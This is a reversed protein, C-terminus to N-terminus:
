NETEVTSKVKEKLKTVAKDLDRVKMEAAIKAYNAKKIKDEKKDKEAEAADAKSKELEEKAEQLETVKEALKEFNTKSTAKAGLYLGNSIGMLTLLGSPLEPFEMTGYIKGTVFVAALTTFLAMQVKGLDPRGETQFLDVWKPDKPKIDAIERGKEEKTSATIKALVSSGGAIGLLILVQDSLALLKGSTVLVYFSASFVLITWLLIQALSLSAGGYKGSVFWIPNYWTWKNSTTRGKIFAAILWPLVLALIWFITAMFRSSVKFEQSLVEVTESDARAVVLLDVPRAFYVGGENVDPIRAQLTAQGPQIEKLGVDKSAIFPNIAEDKGQKRLYVFFRAKSFDFNSKAVTLTIYEGVPARKPKVELTTGMSSTGPIRDIETQADVTLTVRYNGPATISTTIDENLTYDNRRRSLSTGAPITVKYGSTAAPLTYRYYTFARLMYKQGNQAQVELPKMFKHIGNVEKGSPLTFEFNKDLANRRSNLYETPITGLDEGQKMQYDLMMDTFMVYVKTDVPIVETLYPDAANVHLGIPYFLM